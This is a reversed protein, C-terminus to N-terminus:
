LGSSLICHDNHRQCNVFAAIMRIENPGFCNKKGTASVTASYNRVTLSHCVSLFYFFDCAGLFFFLNTLIPQGFVTELHSDAITTTSKLLCSGKSWSLDTAWFPFDEFTDPVGCAELLHGPQM